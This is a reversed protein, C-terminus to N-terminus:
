CAPHRRGARVGDLGRQFEAHIEISADPAGEYGQRPAGKRDTLASRVVGIQACSSLSQWAMYRINRPTSSSDASKASSGLVCLMVSTSVIAARRAGLHLRGLVLEHERPLGGLGGPLAGLLRPCFSFCAFFSALFARCPPACSSARRWRRACPTRSLGRRRASRAAARTFFASFFAFFSWAASPGAPSPWPSSPWPSSSPWAPVLPSSSRPAGLRWARAGFAAAGPLGAGGASASDKVSLSDSRAARRRRTVATMSRAYGRSWSECGSRSRGASDHRRATPRRSRLLRGKRVRPRNVAGAGDKRQDSAM